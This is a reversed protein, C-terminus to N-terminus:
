REAEVIDQRVQAVEERSLGSKLLRLTADMLRVTPGGDFQPCERAAAADLRRLLEADLDAGTFGADTLTVYVSDSSRCNLIAGVSGDPRYFREPERCSWGSIDAQGYEVRGAASEHRIAAERCLCDTDINADLDLTRSEYLLRYVDATTYPDPV